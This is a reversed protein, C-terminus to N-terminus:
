RVRKSAVATLWAGTATAEESVCAWVIHTGNDLEKMFLVRMGSETSDLSVTFEELLQDDSRNFHISGIPIVDTDAPLIKVFRAQDQTLVKIVRNISDTNLSDAALGDIVWSDMSRDAILRARGDKGMVKLKRVDVSSWESPTKSIYAEPSSTLDALQKSEIKFLLERDGQSLLAYVLSGNIDARTGIKITSELESAVLQITAIPNAIGSTATDIPEDIFETSELSLLIKALNNIAERDGHAQIPSQVSWGRPSYDLSVQSGGANLGISKLSSVPIDFLRKSRWSLMSVNIFSDAISKELKGFWRKSAVGEPDREEVRVATFGGSSESGFTLKISSDDKQTISVEGAPESLQDIETTTIAATALARIGGRARNSDVRWHLDDGSQSVWHIMWQGSNASDFEVIEFEEGVRREIQKTQASDFVLTSVTPQSQSNSVQRQTARILLMGAGLAGAIFIWIILTKMSM